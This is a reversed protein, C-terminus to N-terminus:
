DIKYKDFTILLSLCYGLINLNGVQLKLSSLDPRGHPVQELNFLNGFIIENQMAEMPDERGHGHAGHPMSVSIMMVPKKKNSGVPSQRKQRAAFLFEANHTPNLSNDASAAEEGEDVCAVDIEVPPCSLGDADEITGCMGKKTAFENIKQLLREKM